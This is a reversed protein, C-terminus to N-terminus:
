TRTACAACKRAPQSRLLPTDSRASGQVGATALPGLIFHLGAMFQRKSESAASYWPRCRRSAGASRSVGYPEAYASM